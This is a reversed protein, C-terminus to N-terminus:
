NLGFPYGTPHQRRRITPAKPPLDSVGRDAVRRPHRDDISFVPSM